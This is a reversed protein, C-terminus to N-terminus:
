YVSLSGKKAPRKSKQMLDHRIERKKGCESCTWVERMGHMDNTTLRVARAGCYECGEAPCRELQKELKAIKDLLADLRDPTETIRRWLPWKDLLTLINDLAAMAIGGNFITSASDPRM